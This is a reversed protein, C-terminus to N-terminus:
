NIEYCTKLIERESVICLNLNEILILKSNPHKKFSNKLNPFWDLELSIKSLTLIENKSKQIDMLLTDIDYGFREELRIKFHETVKM